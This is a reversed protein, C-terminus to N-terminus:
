RYTKHDEDSRSDPDLGAEKIKERIKQPYNKFRIEELKSRVLRRAKDLNSEKKYEIPKMEIKM